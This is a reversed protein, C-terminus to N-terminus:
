NKKLGFEKFFMNHVYMLKHYRKHKYVGTQVRQNVAPLQSVNSASDSHYQSINKDPDCHYLCSPFNFRSLSLILHLLPSYLLIISRFISQSPCYFLAHTSQHANFVSSRSYFFFLVHVAYFRMNLALSPTQNARSSPTNLTSNCKHM